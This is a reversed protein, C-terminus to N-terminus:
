LELESRTEVVGALVAVVAGTADEIVVILWEILMLSSVPQDLLLKPVVCDTQAPILKGWLRKLVKMFNYSIRLEYLGNM